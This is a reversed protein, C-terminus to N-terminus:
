CLSNIIIILSAEMYIYFLRKQAEEALQLLSEIHDM